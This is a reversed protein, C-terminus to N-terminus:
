RNAKEKPKVAKYGVCDAVLRRAFLREEFSARDPCKCGYSVSGLWKALASRTNLTQHLCHAARSRYICVPWRPM